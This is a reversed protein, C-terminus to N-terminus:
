PTPPNPVADAESIKDIAATQQDLAAVITDLDAATAAGTALRAKVEQVEKIIAENNRTIAAQVDALTAMIREHEKHQSQVARLVEAGIGGFIRDLIGM